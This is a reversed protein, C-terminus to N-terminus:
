LPSTVALPGAVTLRARLSALRTLGLRYPACVSSPCQLARLDAARVVRADDLGADDSQAPPQPRWHKM